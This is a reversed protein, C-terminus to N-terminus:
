VPDGFMVGERRRTCGYEGIEIVRNFRKRRRVKEDSREEDCEESGEGDAAEVFEEYVIDLEFVLM